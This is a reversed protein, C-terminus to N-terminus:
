GGAQRSGAAGRTGGQGGPLHLLQLLAYAPPLGGACGGARAGGAVCGGLQVLRSHLVVAKCSRVAQQGAPM